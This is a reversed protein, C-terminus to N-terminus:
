LSSRSVGLPVCERDRTVRIEIGAIGEAESALQIAKEYDNEAEALEAIKILVDAMIDNRSIKQSLNLCDQYYVKIQTYDKKKFYLEGLNLLPDAQYYCWKEGLLQYQKLSLHLQEDSKQIRGLKLYTIGMLNTIEALQFAWQRDFQESNYYEEAIKVAQQYCNLAQNFHKQRNSLVGLNRWSRCEKKFDKSM